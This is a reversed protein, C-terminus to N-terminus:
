EDLIASKKQKHFNQKKEKNKRLKRLAADTADVIAEYFDYGHIEVWLDKGPIALKYKVKVKKDDSDKKTGQELYVRIKSIKAEELRKLKDAQRNIFERLARTVKLTKAQVIIEMSGKRQDFVM